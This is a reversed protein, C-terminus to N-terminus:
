VRRISLYVLILLAGVGVVCGLGISRVIWYGEAITGFLYNGIMCLTMKKMLPKPSYKGKFWGKKALLNKTSPCDVILLLLLM